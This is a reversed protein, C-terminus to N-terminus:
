EIVEDARVLFTPPFTFKISRAARLNVALRMETPEEFPLEAVKAGKLIRDIYRATGAFNELVAPGYSVLAGGRVEFAWAHMAPWDRLLCENVIHPSLRTSTPSSEVLVAQVKEKDAAAFAEAVSDPTTVVVPLVTIGLKDAAAKVQERFAGSMPSDPTMYVVRRLGPVIESLMELRKAALSASSLTFGTVNGTPRSMSTSLGTAVPDGVVAMVIPIDRTAQMLAEAAASTAGTLVKPGAAVLERALAPLRDLDGGAGRIDYAINRGEAYGLRSLESVLALEKPAATGGVLLIGVRPLLPQAWAPHASAAAAGGLLCIFERRRVLPNNRNSRSSEL